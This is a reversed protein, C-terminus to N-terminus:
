YISFGFNKIESLLPSFGGEFDKPSYLVIDLNKFKSSWLKRQLWKGEKHYNKGFKTSIVAIDVDSNEDQTGKAYSGFLYVDSIPIEKKIEGIYSFIEKKLQASIKKAM